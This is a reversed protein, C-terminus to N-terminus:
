TSAPSKRRRRRPPRLTGYAYLNPNGSPPPEFRLVEGPDVHYDRGILRAAIYGKTIWWRITRPTVKRLKAAEKTTVLKDEFRDILRTLSKQM